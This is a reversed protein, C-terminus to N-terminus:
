GWCKNAIYAAAGATFKVTGVAGVVVTAAEGAPTPEVLSILGLIGAAGTIVGGWFMSKLASGCADTNDPVECTFHGVPGGGAPRHATWDWGLADCQAQNLHAAAASPVSGLILTFFLVSLLTGRFWSDKRM